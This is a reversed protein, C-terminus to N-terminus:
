ETTPYVKINDIAIGGRSRGMMFVLGMVKGTGNTPSTGTYIQSDGESITVTTSDATVELKIHTFNAAPKLTNLEAGTSSSNGATAAALKLAIDGSSSEKNEATALTQDDTKGLTWIDSGQPAAAVFLYNATVWPYNTNGKHTTTPDATVVSFQSAKSDAQASRLSVDMEVTYTESDINMDNFKAFFTRGGSGFGQTAGAFTNGSEAKFGVYAQVGGVTTRDNVSNFTVDNDDRELAGSNTAPATGEFDEYYYYEQQDDDSVKVYHINNGAEDNLQIETDLGSVYPYVKYKNNSSTKTQTAKWEDKIEEVSVTDGKYKEQSDATIVEKRAIETGSQTGDTTYVLTLSVAQKTNKTFEASVTVDYAPMEFTYEGENTTDAPKLTVQKEGENQYTVKLSEPTYVYGPEAAVTIKVEEGEVANTKSQDVTIAGMTADGDDKFENVTINYLKAFHAKITEDAYMRRTITAETGIDSDSSTWKIFRAGANAQATATVTSSQAVSKTLTGESGIYAKGLESDANEVTLTRNELESTRTLTKYTVNTLKAEASNSDGHVFRVVQYQAPTVINNTQFNNGNGHAPLVATVPKADGVTFTATGLDFDLIVDITTWASTSLSSAIQTGGCKIGNASLNAFTFDTNWATNTENTLELSLDGDVPMYDFKMEAAGVTSQQEFSKIYYFSKKSTYTHKLNAYTPHDDGGDTVYTTNSNGNATWGDSEGNKFNYPEDASGILYENDTYTPGEEEFTASVTVDQAPM